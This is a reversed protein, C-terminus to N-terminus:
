VSDNAGDEELVQKPQGSFPLKYIERRNDMFADFADDGLKKNLAKEQEEREREKEFKLRSISHFREWAYVRRLKLLTRSDLPRFTGDENEVNMVWEYDPALDYKRSGIRVYGAIPLYPNGEQDLEPEGYIPQDSDFIPQDIFRPENSKLFSAYMARYREPSIKREIVFKNIFYREYGFVVRLDSDIKKLEDVFAPDPEPHLVRPAFAM